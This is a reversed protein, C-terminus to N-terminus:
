KCSKRWDKQLSFSFDMTRKIFKIKSRWDINWHSLGHLRKGFYVPFRQVKQHEKIATAYVYLDLAFDHPPNQWNEYFERSFLTPQANIDWLPMRFLISEFFSMGITFFVDTLSRGHRKGKVFLFQLNEAKEFFAFGVLADAPDAQMDAHTWGLVDGKAVALGELIGYGYGQNIPVHVKKLFLHQKIAIDLIQESNDTSGNNVLIVEVDLREAFIAGLREILAPLTAAENYCPIVLSYYTSM